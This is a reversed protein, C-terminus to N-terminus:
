RETRGSAPSPGPPHDAGAAFLAETEDRTLTWLGYVGLATGLPVKLLALCCVVLGLIRAWPKLNLLGLGALLSPLALAVLYTGIVAGVTSTIAFAQADGALIGGGAMVLMVVFAGLLVVAGQVLMLIGLLTVHQRM